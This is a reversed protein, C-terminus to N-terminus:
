LDKCFLIYPEKGLLADGCKLFGLKKCLEISAKNEEMVFSIAKDFGLEKKAYKLIASCVEYAYGKRQWPVGIIFGLEPEEYGDRMSIGARGIVLGSTKEVVTWMGFGYLSYITDRYNETYAREMAPDEFLDETYRTISPEKYIRYFADVDEVTTERVLLHETELIDWPLKKYRRYVQELYSLSLDSDVEVPELVWKLNPFSQMRDRYGLVAAGNNSLDGAAEESAVIYLFEERIKIETELPEYIVLMLKERCEQLFQEPLFIRDKEKEFIVIGKM